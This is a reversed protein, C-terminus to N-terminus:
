DDTDASDSTAAPAQNGAPERDAAPADGPRYLPGKQGCATLILLLSCVAFLSVKHSRSGAAVERALWERRFSLERGSAAGVPTRLAM